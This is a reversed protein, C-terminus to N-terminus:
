ALFKITDIIMLLNIINTHNKVAGINELKVDRIMLTIFLFLHYVIIKYIPIFLYMSLPTLTALIVFAGIIQTTLLLKNYFIISLLFVPIEKENLNKSKDTIYNNLNFIILM